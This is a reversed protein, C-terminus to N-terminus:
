ELVQDSFVADFEAESFPLDTTRYEPYNAEVVETPKMGVLQILHTSHSICLARGTLPQLSSGVETLRRYMAYRTMHPGRALGIMTARWFRRNLERINEELGLRM